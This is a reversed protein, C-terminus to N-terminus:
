PAAVDQAATVIVRANDADVCVLDDTHIGSMLGTEPKHVLPVQALVAGSIMVAEAKTVIIAAPALGRRALNLLVYSGSSSGKGSPCVLVRGALIQGDLEHGRDKLAGTQRDISGFSVPQGTVLAKGTATGGVVKVASFRTDM